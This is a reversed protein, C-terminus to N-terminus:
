IYKQSLSLFLSLQLPMSEDMVFDSPYMRSLWPCTEGNGLGSYGASKSKDDLKRQGITRVDVLTDRMQNFALAVVAEYRIDEGRRRRRRGKRRRRTEERM